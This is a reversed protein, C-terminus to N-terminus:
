RNASQHRDQTRTQPDRPSCLQNLHDMYAKLWAAFEAKSDRSQTRDMNRTGAPHFVMARLSNRIWWTQGPKSGV